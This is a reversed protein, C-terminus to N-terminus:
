LLYRESDSLAIARDVAHIVAEQPQWHTVFGGWEYEARDLSHVTFVVPAGCDSRIAEAVPWLWSTHLHIVSPQWTRALRLGAEAADHPMVHFFTIGDSTVVARGLPFPLDKASLPQWGGYIGDAAL